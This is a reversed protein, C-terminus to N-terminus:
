ADRRATRLAGVGLMVVIWVALVFWAMALSTTITQGGVLHRIPAGQGGVNPAILGLSQPYLAQRVGGLQTIASLIPAVFLQFPILIGLTIARSGVWCALGISVLLIFGTYLMVWLYWDVFQSFPPTTGAYFSCSPSPFGRVDPGVPACPGQFAARSPVTGHFSFWVDLLCIVIWGFTMMPIWYLFAGPVKAAFLAWRSRGTAVLDRFIGAGLDGTGALSGVIMAAISGLFADAIAGRQLGRQGGVIAINTRGIRYLEPIVMILIGVGLTMLVSTVVAARNKTIKLSEAWIMRLNV